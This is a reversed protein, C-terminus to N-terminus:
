GAAISIGFIADRPQGEATYVPEVGAVSYLKVDFGTMPFTELHARMARYSAHRFHGGLAQPSGWAEFVNIKSPELPDVAWDYAICGEEARSEAIHRGGGRIIEACDCGDFRLWGAVIIRM